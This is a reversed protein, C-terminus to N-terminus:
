FSVNEYDCKVNVHVELGTPASRKIARFCKCICFDSVQSPKKMPGVIVNKGRIIIVEACVGPLYLKRVQNIESKVLKSM